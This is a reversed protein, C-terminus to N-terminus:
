AGKIQHLEREVQHQYLDEIRQQQEELADTLFPQADIGHAPWGYHIVGAYELGNTLEVQVPTVDAETANALRGTVRPAKSRASALLQAASRQGPDSMDELDRAAKSTTAALQRAGKVEVTM